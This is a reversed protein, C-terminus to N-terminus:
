FTLLPVAKQCKLIDAAGLYQSDFGRPSDSLLWVEGSALTVPLGFARLLRGARDHSLPASNPFPIGNILILGNRDGHIGAIVQVIFGIVGYLIHHERVYTIYKWSLKEGFTTNIEQKDELERETIGARRMMDSIIKEMNVIPLLFLAQQINKSQLANM